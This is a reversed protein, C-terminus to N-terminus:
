ARAQHEPLLHDSHFEHGFFQQDFNRRQILTLIIRIRNYDTLKEHWIARLRPIHDLSRRALPFSATPPDDAVMFRERFVIRSPVIHEEEAIHRAGKRLEAKKRETLQFGNAAM